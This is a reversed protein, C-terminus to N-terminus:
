VLFPLIGFIDLIDTKEPFNLPFCSRDGFKMLVAITGEQLSSFRAHEVDDVSLAADFGFPCTGDEKTKVIM